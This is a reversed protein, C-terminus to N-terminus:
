NEFTTFIPVDGCHKGFSGDGKKPKWVQVFYNHNNIKIDKGIEIAKDIADHIYDYGYLTGYPVGTDRVQKRTDRDYVAVVFHDYLQPYDEKAFALSKEETVEYTDNAINAPPPYDEHSAGDALEIAKKLNEAFVEIEGTREWTVKIRFKKVTM